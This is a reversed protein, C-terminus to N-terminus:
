VVCVRAPSRSLPKCRSVLHKLATYGAARDRPMFIAL